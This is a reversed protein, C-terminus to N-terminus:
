AVAQLARSLDKAGQNMQDAASAAQQYTSLNALEQEPDLGTLAQRRGQAEAAVAQAQDSRSRAQAAERALGAAFGQALRSLGAAAPGAGGPGAYLAQDTAQRLQVLQASLQPLKDNRLDLLGRVEGGDVRLPGAPAGGPAAVSVQGRAGPAVAYTLTAASDGALSTGDAARIELGGDSRRTAVAGILGALQGALAGQGGQAAAGDQGALRAASAERNLAALQSLLANASAVRARIDADAADSLAELGAAAQAAGAAVAQLQGAASAAGAAAPASIAAAGAQARAPLDGIASQAAQLGEGYASWRGADAGAAQIASQLHQQALRQLGGASLGARALLPVAVTGAEGRGGASGTRAPAETPPRLGAGIGGAASGLVASLAM